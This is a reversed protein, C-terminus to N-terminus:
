TEFFGCWNEEIFQQFLLPNGMFMMRGELINESTRLQKNGLLEKAKSFVREISASSTPISLIKIAVQTLNPFIEQHSLWFQLVDIDNPPSLMLFKQLEDSFDTKDNKNRRLYDIQSPTECIFSNVQNDNTNYLLSKILECGKRKQEENLQSLYFRNPHLLSAAFIVNGWSNFIM